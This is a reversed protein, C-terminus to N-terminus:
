FDPLIGIDSTLSDLYKATNEYRNYNKRAEVKIREYMEMDLERSSRLSDQVAELTLQYERQSHVVSDLQSKMRNLQEVAENPQSSVYIDYVIGALILIM